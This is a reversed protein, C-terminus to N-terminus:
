NMKNCEGTEEWKRVKSAHDKGMKYPMLNSVKAKLMKARSSYGFISAANSSIWILDEGNEIMLNATESSYINLEKEKKMPQARKAMKENKIEEKIQNFFDIDHAM